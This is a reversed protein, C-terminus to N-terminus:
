GEKEANRIMLLFKQKEFNLNIKSIYDLWIEKVKLYLINLTIAPNNEWVNELWKNKLSLKNREM